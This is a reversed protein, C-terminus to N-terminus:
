ANHLTNYEKFFLTLINIVGRNKAAPNNNKAAFHGKIFIIVNLKLYKLTIYLM